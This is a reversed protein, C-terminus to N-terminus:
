EQKTFDAAGHKCWPCIFDEPLEEGEHVYGCISCVWQTKKGESTKPSSAQNKIHQHYYAYTLSPKDSLTVAETVEAIFLTHTDLDKSEIVQASIYANTHKNLFYLGNESRQADPFDAFKNVERGSQFGFHKFIDMSCEETLLSLNFIGTEKIMDHTLNTKNVAIVIRFPKETVQSAVNVICGNDQQNNKATLVFLGYSLNRMANPEITKM